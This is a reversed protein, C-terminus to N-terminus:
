LSTIITKLDYNQIFKLKGDFWLETIRNKFCLYKEYADVDKRAIDKRM